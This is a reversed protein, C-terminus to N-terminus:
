KGHSAISFNAWKPIHEKLWLRVLNVNPESCEVSLLVIVCKKLHLLLGSVREFLDFCKAIDKLSSLRRLTAAINYACALTLGLKPEVILTSFLWLLPDICFNFLVSSLPCGTLVGSLVHFLFCM